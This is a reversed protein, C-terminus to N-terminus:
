QPIDSGWRLLRLGELRLAEPLLTKYINCNPSKIDYRGTARYTTLPCGGACAHRWECTRCGEKEMVTVNQLGIRDARLLALPDPDHVNALTHDLHMQCKAIGGHPDVVLYYEGVGCTHEHPSALNTRDVLSALLSKAPVDKELAQIAALMGDIMQKEEFLLEQHTASLKNERYFNINLTLGRSVVWQAAQAIHDANAGTVTLSIHPAWGLQMALDIAGSVQEFSGGGGARPRQQDHVAGLGDMSIMLRIDQQRLQSIIDETLLSGNSLFVAELTIELRAALKCAYQHLQLVFPMRLSPEGGAYKIQVRKFKHSQASRFISDLAALGTELAMDVRQHPLYCYPCRLNCRDTVHLWAILTDPRTPPREVPRKGAHQLLGLELLQRAAPLSQEPPIADLHRLNHLPNPNQFYDLIQQASRNLVVPGVPRVQHYVVQHEGDVWIRTLQHSRELLTCDPESEQPEEEASTKSACACDGPMEAAGNSVLILPQTSM